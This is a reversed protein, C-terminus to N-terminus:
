VSVQNRFIKRGDLHISIAAIDRGATYGNEAHYADKAAPSRFSEWIYWGFEKVNLHHIHGTLWWCNSVESIVERQQSMMVDGLKEPKCTHGHTFGMLTKGFRYYHFAGPTNDVVLRPEKEYAYQMCLGVTDASQWDHNGKVNVFRVKKHRALCRDTCSRIFRNAARINKWHRNDVDLKNGSKRTTASEDDAHLLDGLNLLICEDSAPSCDLVENFAEDYRRVAKKCDWDEERTEEGDALSGLHLDPLVYINLRAKASVKPIPIPPLRPVEEALGAIFDHVQEQLQQQDQEAIVWQMVMNGDADSLTSVRKAFYPDSVPNTWNNAPDYGKRVAQDYCRKLLNSTSSQNIGLRKATKKVSGLELYAKVALRQRPTAYDLHRETLSHLRPDAM